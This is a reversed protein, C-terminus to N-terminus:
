NEEIRYRDIVQLIFAQRRRSLEFEGEIIGKLAQEIDEQISYDYPSFVYDDTSCIGEKLDLISYNAKGFMIKVVIIYRDSRAKITYGRKEGKWYLKDGVKLVQFDEISKIENM